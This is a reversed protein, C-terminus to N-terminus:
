GISTLLASSTLTRYDSTATPNAQCYAISLVEMLFLESTKVSLVGSQYLGENGGCLLLLDCQKALPSGSFRSVCLTYAGANKATEAISLMEKSCGNYCFLIAVDNPLLLSARMLQMCSDSHYEAKPCFMLFRNKSELASAASSGIGFFCIHPATSMWRIATALVLPDILRYTENLVSINSNLVKQMMIDLDDHFSVICNSPQAMAQSDSIARALDAKFPQYGLKGLRRCFRFISTEGVGCESALETITMYIANKANALVYDAISKEVKTFSPYLSKILALLNKTM